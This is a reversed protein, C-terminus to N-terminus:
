RPYPLEPMEADVMGLGDFDMLTWKANRNGSERIHWKGRIAKIEYHKDPGLGWWTYKTAYIRTYREDEYEAYANHDLYIKLDGNLPVALPLGILVVLLLVLILTASLHPYFDEKLWETFLEIGQIIGGLLFLGVVTYILVDVAIEGFLVTALVVGALVSVVVIIKKM